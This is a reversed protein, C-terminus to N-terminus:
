KKLSYGLLFTYVYNEAGTYDLPETFAQSYRGEITFQDYQLGIGATFGYEFRNLYKTRFNQKENGYKGWGDIFIAGYPGAFFSPKLIINDVPSYVFMLPLEIFNYRAIWDEYGLFTGIENTQAIELIYGKVSYMLEPRFSFKDNLAFETFVGFTFTNYNDSEQKLPPAYKFITGRVNSVNMGTKLGYSNLEVAQSFQCDSSLIVFFATLIFLKKM